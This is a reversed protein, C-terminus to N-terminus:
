VDNTNNRRAPQTPQPDPPHQPANAFPYYEVTFKEIEGLINKQSDLHETLGLIALEPNSVSMEGHNPDMIRVDNASIYACIAHGKNRSNSGIMVFGNFNMLDDCLTGATKYTKPEDARELGHRKLYDARYKYKMHGPELLIKAEDKLDSYAKADALRPTGAMEGTKHWIMEKGIKDTANESRQLVITNGIGEGSTVYNWFDQGNASRAIWQLSLAACVGNKLEKDPPIHDSQHFERALRTTGFGMGEVTKVGRKFDRFTAASIPMHPGGPQPNAGPQPIPNPIPQLGRQAGLQLGRNDRQGLPRNGGGGGMFNGGGGM